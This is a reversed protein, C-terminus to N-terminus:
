AASGGGGSVGAAAAAGAALESLLPDVRPGLAMLQRLAAAGKRRVAASGDALAKVFTTQLQPVFPKLAVGGKGLLVGLTHLIAAKVPPPFRDGVIRILPGTIKIVLPQLAKASTLEVLEGLGAAAVERVEASGYMLGQQYMPLLPELGKPQNLGPLYFVEEGGVAAAAGGGGGRRHRADSVVSAVINRCFVLHPVLRDAPVRANLARLAALAAALVAADADALRQLLEKLLMPVQSEFDTVTGKLFQELMWSAWARQRPDENSMRGTIETCLWNVGVEQVSSVVAVACTRVAAMRATVAAATGTGDDGAALEALLAPVIANIHYHIFGGTVEAAAALAQAHPATIPRAVLKPVLYPLLERPRLQVVEKFGFVARLRMDDMESEEDGGGSGGSSSGSGGGFSGSALQELLAPVVEEVARMGVMRHLTQFARAAQERVGRSPDCVAEQVAPVLVELFEEIQRRTASEFIEALGLCVGQRTAEDGDALGRRLHPVVEPLVHDGLKRVLDGLARGGVIRKELDDAAQPSPSLAFSPP